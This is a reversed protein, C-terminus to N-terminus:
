KKNKEKLSVISTLNSKFISKSSKDKNKKNYINAEIIKLKKKQLM